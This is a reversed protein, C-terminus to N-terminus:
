NFIVWKTGTKWPSTDNDDKSDGNVEIM